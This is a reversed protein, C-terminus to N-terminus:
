WLRLPRLGQYTFGREAMCGSRVAARQGANADRWDYQAPVFRAPRTECVTRNGYTRCTRQGPEWRAPSVLVQV